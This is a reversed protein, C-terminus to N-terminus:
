LGSSRSSSSGHTAADCARPRVNRRHHVCSRGRLDCLACLGVVLPPTHTSLWAFGTGVGAIVALLGALFTIARTMAARRGYLSTVYITGILAVDAEDVREQFGEEYALWQPRGAKVAREANSSYRALPGGDDEHSVGRGMYLDWDSVIRRAPLEPTDVYGRGYVDPHRRPRPEFSPLNLPDHTGSLAEEQAMTIAGQADHHGLRRAKEVEM